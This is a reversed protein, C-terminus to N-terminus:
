SNHMNRTSGGRRNHATANHKHGGMPQLCEHSHHNCFGHTWCYKIQQQYNNRYGRRNDNYGRGQQRNNYRTQFNGNNWRGYNQNPQYKNRWMPEPTIQQVPQHWNVRQQPPTSLRNQAEYQHTQQDKLIKDMKQQMDNLQRQLEKIENKLNEQKEDMATRVGESIMNVLNTENLNNNNTLQGTKRLNKQADRFHKKCNEWTKTHTPKINWNELGSEFKNTNQLIIYAMNIKQQESFPSHAMEALEALNDIETFINDIPENPNFAMTEVQDRLQRLEGVTM